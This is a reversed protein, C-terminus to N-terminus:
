EAAAPAPTTAEAPAPSGAEAPVAAALKANEALVAEIAEGMGETSFNVGFSEENATTIVIAPTEAGSLVGANVPAGAVCMAPLCSNYPAHWVRATDTTDIMLSVGPAISVGLPTGVTLMLPAEAAAKELFVFLRPGNEEESLAVEQRALCSSGPADVCLVSWAGFEGAVREEPAPAAAPTEAVPDTAPAPAPAADQAHAIGASLAFAAATLLIRKMDAFEEQTMIMLSLSLFSGM